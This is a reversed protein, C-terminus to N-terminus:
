VESRSELIRLKTIRNQEMKEVRISVGNWDLIEGSTPIRGLTNIVFGAITDYEGIPLSHPLIQNLDDILIRADVLFDGNKLKKVEQNDEPEDFEDFIEGFIEEILDEVTVVGDVGGHEDLVVAFHSKDKQLEQLVSDLKRSNPIITVPRIFEEISPSTKKSVLSPILDKIILMGRVDDLDDGYVLLRSYGTEAFVKLVQELDLDIKVAAVDKRPTMVERIVTDGFAVVGEIMEREDEEIEGAETSAEVIEALDESSVVLERERPMELEFADVVDKVMRDLVFTIPSLCWSIFIIILSSGCLAREPYTYSIARGIQSCTLAILPVVSFVFITGAIFQFEPNTIWDAFFNASNLALKSIYFGIFLIILFTSVQSSLLYRRPKDIIKNALKAGFTKSEIFERLKSSRSRIIASSALTFFGFLLMLVLTIILDFFYSDAEM